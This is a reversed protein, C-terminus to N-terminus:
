IREGKIRRETDNLSCVYPYEKVESHSVKIKPYKRCYSRILLASEDAICRSVFPSVTIEQILSSVNVKLNVGNPNTSLVVMRIEQDDEYHITKHFINNEYENGVQANGYVMNEIVIDNRTNQISDVLKGITSSIRCSVENGGYSKWMLYNEKQSNDSRVDLTWCSACVLSRKRVSEERRFTKLNPVDRFGLSLSWLRYDNSNMSSFLKDNSSEIIKSMGRKERLDTFNQINSVHMIGETLMSCLTSQKIYRYIPTSLELSMGNGKLYIGHDRVVRIRHNEAVNLDDLTACKAM